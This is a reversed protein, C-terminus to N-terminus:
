AELKQRRQLSAESTASLCPVRSASPPSRMQAHARCALVANACAWFFCPASHHGQKKAGEGRGPLTGGQFLM